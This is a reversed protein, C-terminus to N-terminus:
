SLLEAERLLMELAAASTYLEARMGLSAAAEVHSITDDVFVVDAPAVDLAECALQFVRVDPKAVGLESSNFIRDFEGAIGLQRLHDDLRTTANTVLGVPARERVRRCLALVEPRVEGPYAAADALLAACEVGCAEEIRRAAELRWAEDTIAGVVVQDLLDQAFLAARVVDPDLGPLRDPDGVDKPWERIVGDLDILFAQAGGPPGSGENM